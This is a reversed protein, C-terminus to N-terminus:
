ESAESGLAAQSVDEEREFYFGVDSSKIRTAFVLSAIRDRDTASLGVFRVGVGGEPDTGIPVEEVVRGTIDQAELSPVGRIVLLDDKKLNADTDIALGGTGLDILKAQHLIEREPDHYADKGLPLHLFRIPAEIPIRAFRRRQEVRIREPTEFFLFWEGLERKEQLRTEFHLGGLDQRFFVVELDDGVQWDLDTQAPNSHEVVRVAISHADCHITVTRLLIGSPGQVLLEEEEFPLSVGKSNSSPVEWGRRVRIRDLAKRMELDRMLAPDKQLSLRLAHEFGFRSNLLRDPEIEASLRTLKVLLRAESGEIGRALLGGLVLSADFKAAAEQTSEVPAAVLSRLPKALWILVFFGPILWLWDFEPPM